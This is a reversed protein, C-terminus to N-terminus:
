RNFFATMGSCILTHVSGSLVAFPNRVDTARFDTFSMAFSAILPGIMFVLFVLVFPLSFLWGSLAQQRDAPSYPRRSAEALGSVKSQKIM